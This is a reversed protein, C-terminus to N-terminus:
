ENIRYTYTLMDKTLPILKGMFEMRLPNQQFIEYNTDNKFKFTLCFDYTDSNSGTVELPKGWDLKQLTKSKEKLKYALKSIEAKEKATVNSKFQVLVVQRIEKTHKITKKEKNKAMVIGVSSLLVFSLLLFKKM